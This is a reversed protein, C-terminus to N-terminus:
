CHGPAPVAINFALWGSKRAMNKRLFCEGFIVRARINHLVETLQVAQCQDVFDCLSRTCDAVELEHMKLRGTVPCRYYLERISAERRQSSCILLWEHLLAFEYLGVGLQHGVSHFSNPVENICRM